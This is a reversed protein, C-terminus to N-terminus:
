TNDAVNSTWAKTSDLLSLDNDTGTAISSTIRSSLVPNIELIDIGVTYSLGTRRIIMTKDDRGDTGAHSTLTPSITWKECLPYGTDATDGCLESIPTL